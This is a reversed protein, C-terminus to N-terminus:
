KQYSDVPITKKELPVTEPAGAVTRFAYVPVNYTGSVMYSDAAAPDGAVLSLIMDKYDPEHVPEAEPGKAEARVDDSQKRAEPEDAMFVLPLAGASPDTELMYGQQTLAARLEHDFAIYFATTAPPLLYVREADKAQTEELKKALDQAAFRIDELVSTNAVASYDYGIEKPARGPASKYPEKFSSYGRGMPAPDLGTACGGLVLTATLATTLTLFYRMM